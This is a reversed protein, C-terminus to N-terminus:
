ALHDDRIDALTKTGQRADPSRGHDCLRANDQSQGGGCGIACSRWSWTGRSAARGQPSMLEHEHRAVVAEVVGLMEPLRYWRRLWALLGRHWWGLVGRHRLCCTQPVHAPERSWTVAKGGAADGTYREGEQETVAFGADTVQPLHRHPPPVSPCRPNLRGLLRWLIVRHSAAPCNDVSGRPEWDLSEM